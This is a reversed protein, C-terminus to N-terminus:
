LVLYKIGNETNNNLKYWLEFNGIVSNYKLQSIKNNIM